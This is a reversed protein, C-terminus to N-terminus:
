HILGRVKQAKKAIGTPTWGGRLICLQGKMIGGRLADVRRKKCNWDTDM